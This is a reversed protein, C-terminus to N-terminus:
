VKLKQETKEEKKEVMLGLPLPPPPSRAGPERKPCQRQIPRRPTICCNSLILNVVPLSSSMSNRGLCSLCPSHEALAWHPGRRVGEQAPESGGGARWRESRSLGQFRTTGIQYGVVRSRFGELRTKPPKRDLDLPKSPHPSPPKCRCEM